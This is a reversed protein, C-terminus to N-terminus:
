FSNSPKPQRDSLWKDGKATSAIIYGERPSDLIGYFRVTMSKLRWSAEIGQYHAGMANQLQSINSQTPTGYKASLLAYLHEQQEAGESKLSVQEPKGDLLMITATPSVGSPVAESGLEIKSNGDYQPGHPFDPKTKLSNGAGQFDKFCPYSVNHLAYMIIGYAKEKKCEPIVIEKGLEVGAIDRIDAQSPVDASKAPEPTSSSEQTCGVLSAAVVLSTLIAKQGNASM